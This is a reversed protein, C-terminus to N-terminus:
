KGILKPRILFFYLGTVLGTLAMFGIVEAASLDTGLLISGVLILLCIWNVFAQSIRPQRVEKKYMGYALLIGVVLVIAPLVYRLQAM